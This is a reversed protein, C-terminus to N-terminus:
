AIIVDYEGDIEGDDRESDKESGLLPAYKEIEPPFLYSLPVMFSLLLGDLLLAWRLSGMADSLVGVLIPSVISGAYSIAAATAIASGANQGPLRGATSFVTPIITSIGAGAFVSGLCALVLSLVTSSASPALVLLLFGILVVVGEYRVLRQRGIYERIKDCSFRGLGMFVMFMSFGITANLSSADLIDKFYIILWTVMSGEGFSGLFGVLCVYLAPGTPIMFTPAAASITSVADVEHEQSKFAAKKEIMHEDERHYLGQGCVLNTATGFACTLLFIDSTGWGATSLLGGVLSGIAASISYCGHFSGMIPHGAVTEVLVASANMAVDM